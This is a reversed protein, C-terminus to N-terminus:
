GIQLVSARAPSVAGATVLPVSVVPAAIAAQPSAATNMADVAQLMAQPRALARWATKGLSERQAERQVDQILAMSRKEQMDWDARERAFDAELREVAERLTQEAVSDRWALGAKAQQGEVLAAEARRAEDRAVQVEVKHEERAAALERTLESARESELQRCSAAHNCRALMEKVEAQGQMEAEALEFEGRQIASRNAAVAACEARLEEQVRRIAEQLSQSTAARNNLEAQAMQARMAQEAASKQAKYAVNRLVEIDSQTRTMEEAAAHQLYGIQAAYADVFRDTISSRLPDDRAGSSVSVDDDLGAPMPAGGRWDHHPPPRPAAFSHEQLAMPIPMPERLPRRLHPLPGQLPHQAPLVPGSIMPPMLGDLPSLPAQTFNPDPTAVGPLVPPLHLPPPPMVVPMAPLSASHNM